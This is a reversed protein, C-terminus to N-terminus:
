LIRRTFQSVWRRRDKSMFTQAQVPVAGGVVKIELKCGASQPAEQGGSDRSGIGIM